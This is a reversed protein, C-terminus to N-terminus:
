NGEIERLSRGRITDPLRYFLFGIFGLISILGVIPGILRIGFPNDVTFGFVPLVISVLFASIAWAMKEMFGFGAYYM